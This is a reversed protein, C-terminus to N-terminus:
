EDERGMKLNKILLITIVEIQSQDLGGGRTEEALPKLTISQLHDPITEIDETVKRKELINNMMKTNKIRKNRLKQKLITLLRKFSTMENTMLLLPQLMKM